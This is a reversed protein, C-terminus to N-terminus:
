PANEIVTILDSAQKVMIKQKSFVEMVNNDLNITIVKIAPYDQLLQLPLNSSGNNRGQQLIVIDPLTTEIAQILTARDEDSVISVVKWDEIAALFFEISTSLIDECGWVVIKKSGTLTNSRRDTDETFVAAM